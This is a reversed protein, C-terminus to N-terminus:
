LRLSSALSVVINILLVKGAGWRWLAHGLLLSSLVFHFHAKPLSAKYKSNGYVQGLDLPCHTVALLDWM